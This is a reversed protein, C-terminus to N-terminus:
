QCLYYTYKTDVYRMVMGQMVKLRSLDPLSGYTKCKTHSVQTAYNDCTSTDRRRTPHM